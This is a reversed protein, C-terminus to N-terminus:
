LDHAPRIDFKGIAAMALYSAMPARERWTWTGWGRAYTKRVLHGNSIAQLRAPVVLSIRYSAKDRPHDNVPFWAAAVEPEGWIIAGDDTPVVGTQIPTGPVTFTRPVGAYRANVVFKSGRTPKHRPSIVLEHHHRRTWAARMGDVTLSRIRLGVFDLNFRSLNKKAVATIRAHGALRNTRPNYRIRLQYHRVDYGGNGYLPFYDDGIGASGPTFQAQQRASVAGSPIALAGVLILGVVTRWHRGLMGKM